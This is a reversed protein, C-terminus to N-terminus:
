ASLASAGDYVSANSADMDTLACIMSQYEFIAQLIGQSIEAQYPTYATVFEEKAVMRKVVAPIYHHYAGAGRFISRYVQNKSALDSIYNEVELESMGQPIHLSNKNGDLKLEEPLGTFLEEVRQLGLLALMEERQKQTSPVYNGM